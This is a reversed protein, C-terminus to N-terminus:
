RDDFRRRQEDMRMLERFAEDYAAPDKDPDLGDLTSRLVDIQRLLRFEELRLFVEEEEKTVNPSLALEAALRTTEDDAGHLLSEGKQRSTKLVRFLESHAPQTFHEETLWNTTQELRSPSDMLIALAEREVKVHGPQRMKPAVRTQQSSDSAEAIELQVQEPAVGIRKAVWFGHENRAVRNPEWSLLRAAAKVARAKGEATDLRQREMERELMFRMLPVAEDLFLRVADAGETLAVDAPDKGAPVPAVLVELGIKEHLGFGRESAVSGAADADFALVVRECFRKIVAFHEEGLATGCTAVVASVDCKQLAMVDTYGETVVVVGESVMAQRARDLGFLIKSKRYLLTEPSNLYKPQDEGLTRAGFGVINNALDTIPFMLRGRFRDRHEGSDSVYALGAEVIQKSTMKKTLLYRFLTDRGAPSHGLKWHAADEPSFGREKLYTRAAKAEPSSVLREEFYEAALRNAEILATRSGVSSDSSGEYRLTMGLRDALREAAESFTMGEALKLFSFVDGGSSCGFCHYLQKDPDVTFSPTKEQHFCCLGKFVRGAKKLSMHASIVEVIDARERLEQVDGAAILGQMKRVGFTLIQHRPFDTSPVVAGSPSAKVETRESLDKTSV